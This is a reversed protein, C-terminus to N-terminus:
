GALDKNSGPGSKPRPDKHKNYGELRAIDERINVFKDLSEKPIEQIAIEVLKKQEETLEYEIGEKNM